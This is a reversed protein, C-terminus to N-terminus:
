NVISTANIRCKEENQIQDNGIISSSFRIMLRRLDWLDGRIGTPIANHPGNELALFFEELSPLNLIAEGAEPQVGYGPIRGHLIEQDFKFGRSICHVHDDGEYFPLQLNAFPGETVCHGEFV